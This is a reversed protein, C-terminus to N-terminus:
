SEPRAGGTQAPWWHDLLMEDWRVVTRAIDHWEAKREWEERTVPVWEVEVDNVQEHVVVPQTPDFASMPQPPPREPM